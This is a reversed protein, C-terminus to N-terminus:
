TGKTVIALSDKLFNLPHIAISVKFDSIYHYFSKIKTLPQNPDYIYLENLVHINREKEADTFSSKDM